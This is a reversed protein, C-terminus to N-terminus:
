QEICDVTDLISDRIPYILKCGECQLYGNVIDIEFLLTKVNKSVLPNAIDDDTLFDFQPQLRKLFEKMENNELFGKLLETNYNTEVHRQEEINLITNTNFTCRQCKFVAQVFIKM